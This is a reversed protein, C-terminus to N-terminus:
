AAPRLVSAGLGRARAPAERVLATFLREFSARQEAMRESHVHIEAAPLFASAARVAVEGADCVARSQEWLEDLDVHEPRAAAAVDPDRSRRDSTPWMRQITAPIAAHPMRMPGM